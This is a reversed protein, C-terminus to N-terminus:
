SKSVTIITIAQIGEGRGFATLGEGTTATIGIESTNIKCLKAINEKMAKIHASIKPTQCEIAIAIHNIKWDELDNLALNLYESSDKQDNKVLQDAVDGLINKGTISSISNTISHFIVDADSNGELGFPHEFKIGALILPKGTENEFRHSDQGIGTKINM